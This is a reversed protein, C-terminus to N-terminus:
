ATQARRITSTLAEGWGHAYPDSSALLEKAVGEVGVRAAWRALYSFYHLNHDRFDITKPRAGAIACGQVPCAEVLASGVLERRLKRWASPAELGISASGVVGSLPTEPVRRYRVSGASYGVAPGSALAPGLRGVSDAIPRLGFEDFAEAAKFYALFEESTAEEAQLGSVRLLAIQVGTDAYAAAADTLAGTLLAKRPVQVFAVAHGDPAIQATRRAMEVNISLAPDAIDTFPIYPAASAATDTQSEVTVEVFHDRDAAAQLTTPDLPLEVAQASAMQRLRAASRETAVEDQLLAPTDPDDLIPVDAARFAEHLSVQPRRDGNASTVRYRASIIAGNPKHRDLLEPLLGAEIPEPRYYFRGRSDSTM